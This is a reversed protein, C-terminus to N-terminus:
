GLVHFDLTVTSIPKFIVKDAGMRLFLEEDAPLVNGTVGLIPGSYSMDRMMKAATPGNMNPMQFDMLVLDVAPGREMALKMAAVAEEGDRAQLVCDCRDAVLRGMLKLNVPSDDVVLVTGGYWPSSASSPAAPVDGVSSATRDAASESADGSLNRASASVDVGSMEVSGESFREVISSLRMRGVGVPSHGMTHAASASTSSVSGEFVDDKFPSVQTLRPSKPFSLEAVPRVSSTRQDTERRSSVSLSDNGLREEIRITRLSATYSSAENPTEIESLTVPLLVTFMCETTSDECSVSIQGSHIDVVTKAVVCCILFFVYAVLVRKTTSFIHFLSIKSYIRDKFM